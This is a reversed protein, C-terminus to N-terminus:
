PRVGQRELFVAVARLDPLARSYAWRSVLFSGDALELVGIGHLAAIAQLHRLPKGDDDSHGIIATDTETQGQARDAAVSDPATVNPAM